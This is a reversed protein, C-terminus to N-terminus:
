EVLRVSYSDLSGIGSQIGFTRDNLSRTLTIRAHCGNELCIVTGDTLFDDVDVDIYRHGAVM